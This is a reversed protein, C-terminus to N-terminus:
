RFNEPVKSFFLVADVCKIMCSGLMRSGWILTRTAQSYKISFYMKVDRFITKSNRFINSKTRSIKKSERSISKEGSFIKIGPFM